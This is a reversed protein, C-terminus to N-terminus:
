NNLQIKIYVWCCMTKLSQFFLLQSIISNKGLFLREEQHQTSDESILPLRAKFSQFWLFYTSQTLPSYWWPQSDEKQTPQWIMILFLKNCNSKCSVNDTEVAKVIWMTWWSLMDCKCNTFGDHRASNAAPQPCPIVITHAIKRPEHSLAFVANHICKCSAPWEGKPESEGKRKESM